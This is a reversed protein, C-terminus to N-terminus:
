SPSILGSNQLVKQLTVAKEAWAPIPNVGTEWRTVTNSRVGLREALERQTLALMQRMHRLQDKTM